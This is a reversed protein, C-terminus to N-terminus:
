SQGQIRIITDIFSHDDLFLLDIKFVCSELKYISYNGMDSLSLIIPM